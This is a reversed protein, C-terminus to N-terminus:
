YYTPVKYTSVVSGDISREIIEEYGTPIPPPELAKFQRDWEAFEQKRRASKEKIHQKIRYDGTTVEEYHRQDDAHSELMSLTSTVSAAIFAAAGSGLLLLVLNEMYRHCPDFRCTKRCFKKLIGHIGLEVVGALLMGKNRRYALSSAECCGQSIGQLSTGTVPTSGARGFVCSGLDHTAVM